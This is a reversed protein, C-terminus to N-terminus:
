GGVQDAADKALCNWPAGRVSEPNTIAAVDAASNIPGPGCVLATGGPTTITILAAAPQAAGAFVALGSPDVALAMTAGNVLEVTAKSGPPAVIGILDYPTTADADIPIAFREDDSSDDLVPPM